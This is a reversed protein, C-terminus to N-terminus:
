PGGASLLASVAGMIGQLSVRCCAFNEHLWACMSLCPLVSGLVGAARTKLHIWSAHACVLRLKRTVSPMALFWCVYVLVWPFSLFSIDAVAPDKALGHWAAAAAKSGTISSHFLVSAMVLVSCSLLALLRWFAWWLGVSVAELSFAAATCGGLWSTSAFQQVLSASCAAPLSPWCTAVGVGAFAHIEGLFVSTQDASVHWPWNQIAWMHLRWAPFALSSVHTPQPAASHQVCPTCPKTLRSNSRRPSVFCMGCLVCAGTIGLCFPGLCCPCSICCCCCLHGSCCCLVLCVCRVDGFVVCWIHRAFLAAVPM